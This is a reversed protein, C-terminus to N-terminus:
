ESWNDTRFPEAPLGAANQLNTVPANTFAYRVSQIPLPTGQPATILITNGQIVATGQRFVHDDGAVYFLQNLPKNDKTNLDDATGSAFNVIVRNNSIDVSTYRPGYCIVNQNYTNKLALLALREGVPKKDRPHHNASEGVDMTVAMGTNPVALINAQAERFKAYDDLTPHGGAPNTTYYDEAFPTMQVFYFPLEGQKFAGRWGNILASNIKTYGGPDDHENNEGQYWLFGKISLNTFPNIMGNYLYAANVAYNKIDPNNRFADTNTWLQCSTGNVASIIIGIPVNLSTNLKRAFYYAVASFTGATQPSCVTWNAPYTLTNLLKDTYDTKVTLARINLYDAAAIEDQYNLVGLFSPPLMEVPMVMNSQGSCLWVDGVLINNLVVDNFGESTCKITQAVQSAVTAPITAKWIGDNGATAEFTANNWSVNVIAHRGADAVGWVVLPKDRQIVMNSQLVNSVVFTPVVPAPPTVPPTILSPLDNDPHIDNTKHCGTIIATICIIFVLYKPPM